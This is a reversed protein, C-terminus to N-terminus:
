LLRTTASSQVDSAGNKAKDASEHLSPGDVVFPEHSRARGGHVTQPRHDRRASSPLCAWSRPWCHTSTTLSLLLATTLYRRTAPNSRGRRDVLCREGVPCTRGFFDAPWDCFSRPGKGGRGGERERLSEKGAPFKREFFIPWDSLQPCSREIERERECKIDRQRLAISASEASATAVVRLSVHACFCVSVSQRM